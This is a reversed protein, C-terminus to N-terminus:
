TLIPVSRGGFFLAGNRRDGGEMELRAAAGISEFSGLEASSRNEGRVALQWM